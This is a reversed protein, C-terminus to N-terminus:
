RVARNLHSLRKASHGILARMDRLMAGVALLASWILIPVIAVVGLM